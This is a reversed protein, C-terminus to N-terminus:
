KSEVKVAKVPIMGPSYFGELTNGDIAGTFEVVFDWGGKDSDRICM